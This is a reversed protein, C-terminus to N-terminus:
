EDSDELDTADPEPAVPAPAAKRVSPKRAPKKATKRGAKGKEAAKGAKGEKAAKGKDAGPGLQSLLATAKDRIAALQKRLDQQRSLWENAKRESTGLFTGLDEALTTLRSSLQKGKKKKAM